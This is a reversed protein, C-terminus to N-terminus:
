NCLNLELNAFAMEANMSLMTLQVENYCGMLM